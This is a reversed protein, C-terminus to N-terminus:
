LSPLRRIINFLLICSILMTTCLTIICIQNTDIQIKYFYYSSILVLISSIGNLIVTNGISRNRYFEYGLILGLCFTGFFHILYMNIAAYIAASIIIAKTPENKQLLGKLFIGRFIAEELIPSMIIAGLLLIPPNLPNTTLNSPISIQSTLKLLPIYIGIQFILTILFSSLFTKNNKIKYNLHLKIGRKRNIISTLAIFISYDVVFILTALYPISISDKLAILPSSIIISTLLLLIFQLINKPYLTKEEEDKSTNFYSKIM